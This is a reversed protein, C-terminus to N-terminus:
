ELLFPLLHFIPFSPFQTLYDRCLGLLFLPDFLHHAAHVIEYLLRRLATFHDLLRFRTGHEFLHAFLLPLFSRKPHRLVLGVDFLVDLRWAAIKQTRVSFVVLYLYFKEGLNLVVQVAFDATFLQLKLWYSADDFTTM